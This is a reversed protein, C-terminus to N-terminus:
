DIAAGYELSLTVLWLVLSVVTGVLGDVFLLKYQSNSITGQPYAECVKCGNYTFWYIERGIFFRATCLVRAVYSVSHRQHLMLM